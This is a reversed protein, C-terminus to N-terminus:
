YVFCLFYNKSNNMKFIRFTYILIHYPFSPEIEKGSLCTLFRLQGVISYIWLWTELFMWVDFYLTLDSFHLLIMELDLYPCGFIWMSNNRISSSPFIHLPFSIWKRDHSSCSTVPDLLGIGTELVQFCRLMAVFKVAILCQELLSM